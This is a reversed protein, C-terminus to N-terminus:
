MISTLVPVSSLIMGMCDDIADPGTKPCSLILRLIQNSVTHCLEVIDTLELKGCINLFVFTHLRYIPGNICSLASLSPNIDCGRRINSERKSSIMPM